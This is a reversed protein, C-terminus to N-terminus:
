WSAGSSGNRLKGKKEGWVKHTVGEIGTTEYVFRHQDDGQSRAPTEVRKYNDDYAM